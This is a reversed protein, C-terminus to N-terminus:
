TNDLVRPPRGVFFASGVAALLWGLAVLRGPWGGTGLAGVIVLLGGTAVIASAWVVIAEWWARVRLTAMAGGVGLGVISFLLTALVPFGRDCPGAFPCGSVWRGLVRGVLYGAVFGGPALAGARLCALGLRDPGVRAPKRERVDSRM